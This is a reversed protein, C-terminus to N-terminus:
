SIMWGLLTSILNNNYLAGVFLSKDLYATIGESPVLALIGLVFSVALLGFFLGVVCGLLVDIRKVLKIKTAIKKVIKKVIWMLGWSGGVILIWAIFNTCVGSLTRGAAMALTTGTPISENGFNEIILDVLFNPLNKEALAASLGANSIDTGFGEIKLLAMEFSTNLSDQLGFLGGTLSVVLKTLLIGMLLAAVVSVIGFFCEIFGKKGCYWATFVLVGLVILDLLYNSWAIACLGNLNLM